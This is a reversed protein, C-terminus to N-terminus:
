ASVKTLRTEVEYPTGCLSHTHVRFQLLINPVFVQKYLIREREVNSTIIRGLVYKQKNRATDLPEMYLDLLMSSINDVEKTLVKASLTLNYFTANLDTLGAIMHGAHSHIATLGVEAAVEAAPELIFPLLIGGASIKFFDRRDIRTM